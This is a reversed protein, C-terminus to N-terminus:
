FSHVFCVRLPTRTQIVEALAALEDSTLKLEWAEGIDM